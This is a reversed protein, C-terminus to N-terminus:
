DDIIPKGQADLLPTLGGAYGSRVWLYQVVTQKDRIIQVLGMEKLAGGCKEIVEFREDKKSM